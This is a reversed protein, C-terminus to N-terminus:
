TAVPSHSYLHKLKLLMHNVTEAPAAAAKSGLGELQITEDNVMEAILRHLWFHTVCKRGSWPSM